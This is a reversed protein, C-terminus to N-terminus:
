IEFPNRSGWSVWEMMGNNRPGIFLSGCGKCNELCYCGIMVRIVLTDLGIFADRWLLILLQM